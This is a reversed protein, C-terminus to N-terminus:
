IWHKCAKWLWVCEVVVPVSDREMIVCVWCCCASVCAMCVCAHALRVRSGQHMGAAEKNKRKPCLRRVGHTNLWETCQPSVSTKQSWYNYYFTLLANQNEFWNWPTKEESRQVFVHKQVTLEKQISSSNRLYICIINIYYIWLLWAIKNTNQTQKPSKNRWRNNMAIFHYLQNFYM